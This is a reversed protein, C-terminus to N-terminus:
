IVKTIGILWRIGRYQNRGSWDGGTVFEVRITPRPWLSIGYGYAHLCGNHEFFRLDDGHYEGNMFNTLDAYLFFRMKLDAFLEYGGRAYFKLEDLPKYESTKFRYKYGISMNIFWYHSGNLYEFYYAPFIDIQGDGIRLGDEWAEKEALPFKVRLSSSSIFPMTLWRHQLTVWFERVALRSIPDDREEMEQYTWGIPLIAGVSFSGTIGYQVNVPMEFYLLGTVDPLNRARGDDNFYASTFYFNPYIKLLYQGAPATSAEFEMARVNAPVVMIIIAALIQMGYWVSVTSGSKFSFM